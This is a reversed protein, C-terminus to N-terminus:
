WSTRSRTIFKRIEKNGIWVKENSEINILELDVQYYKIQQKGETDIITSITGQLMYDAGTEAALRAATEESSYIQQELREERIEQRADRAAVFRVKGSNILEREMNRIFTGTDIHESSLNRVTGVIVVPQQSHQSNFDGLWPRALVDNIMQEAVLRSDTDNWRGSLDIAEETSIRQVTKRQSCGVILSLSILLVILAILCKNKM